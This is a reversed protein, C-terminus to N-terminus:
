DEINIKCDPAIMDGNEDPVGRDLVPELNIEVVQGESEYMKKLAREAENFQTAIRCAADLFAKVALKDSQYWHPNTILGNKDKYSHLELGLGIYLSLLGRQSLRHVAKKDRDKTKIRPHNEHDHIVKAITDEKPKLHFKHGCTCTYETFSAALLRTVNTANPYFVKETYDRAELQGLANCNPCPIQSLDRHFNPRTKASM